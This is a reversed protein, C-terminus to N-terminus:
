LSIALEFSFSKPLDIFMLNSPGVNDEFGTSPFLVSGFWFSIESSDCLYIAFLVSEVCRDARGHHRAGAGNIKWANVKM